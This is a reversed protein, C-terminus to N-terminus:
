EETSMVDGRALTKWRVEFPKENRKRNLDQGNEQITSATDVDLAIIEKQLLIKIGTLSRKDDILGTTRKYTLYEVDQGSIIRLCNETDQGSIIRLCNETNKVQALMRPIYSKVSDSDAIKDETSMVGGRLWFEGNFQMDLHSVSFDWRKLVMKRLDHKCRGYSFRYSGQAYRDRDKFVLVLTKYVRIAFEQGDDKTHNLQVERQGLNM